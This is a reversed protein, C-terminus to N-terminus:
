STETPQPLEISDEFFVELHYHTFDKLYEDLLVQLIFDQEELPELEEKSLYCQRVFVAQDKENYFTCFLELNEVKNQGLNVVKGEITLTDDKYYYKETKVIPNGRFNEFYNKYDVGIKVEYIDIYKEREDVYLCFPLRCSGRLYNVYAPLAASIIKNKEKDLFDFTIVINTKCTSSTNVIEGLVVLGGYIDLYLNCNEIKVDISSTPKITIRQYDFYYLFDESSSNREFPTNNENSKCSSFTLATVLCSFIALYFIISKRTGIGSAHTIDINYKNYKNNSKITGNTSIRAM